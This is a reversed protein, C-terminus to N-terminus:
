HKHEKLDEKLHKIENRNENAVEKVKDIEKGHSDVRKRLTEYDEAHRKTFNDLNTAYTNITILINTIREESKTANNKVIFYLGLLTGLSFVMMGMFENQGM